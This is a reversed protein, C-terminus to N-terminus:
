QSGKELEAIKKELDIIEGRKIGIRHQLGAIVDSKTVMPCSLYGHWQKNGETEKFWMKGVGFPGLGGVLVEGKYNRALIVNGMDTRIGDHLPETVAKLFNSEQIASSALADEQNTTSM